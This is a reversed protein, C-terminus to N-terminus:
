NSSLDRKLCKEIKVARRQNCTGLTGIFGPHNALRLRIENMCEPPLNLVDGPKLNAVEGASIHIEPLEARVLVNLEDFFSNWKAPPPKVVVEKKEGTAAISKLKRGLPELMQHPFAFQMQEVVDSIRTEMGVVLMITEATSTELYRSNVEYGMVSPQIEMLDKWIMCWENVILSVVTSLLRAEIKGIQSSEEAVRGPGGLDRDVMSLGLRPPVDLLGIGTLPQLKLMTLYTPNYLSEAFRHFPMPELKSLQLSVELGLHISLRTALASIFDEHRVRMPRLESASFPSLKPFDLRRVVEGSASQMLIHPDTEATPPTVTEVQALLLEVESQTITEKSAAEAPM